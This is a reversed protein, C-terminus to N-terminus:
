SPNQTKDQSIKSALKNLGGILPYFFLTETLEGGEANNRLMKGLKMDETMTQRLFEIYGSLKVPDILFKERLYNKEKLVSSLYRDFEGIMKSIDNETLNDLSVEEEPTKSVPFTLSLDGGPYVAIIDRVEGADERSDDYLIGGMCTMEKARSWRKIEPAPFDSNGAVESFMKYALDKLKSSGVPEIINLIKSGNGTFTIYAPVDFGAKRILQALHYMIGTYFLLFVIKFDPDEFLKTNFSVKRDETQSGWRDLSFLMAIVDVSPYNEEIEALLKRTEDLKKASLEKKVPPLFTKLFGNNSKENNFGDGFVANGAFRFSTALRPVQKDKENIFLVMDTTEGGIDISLVPRHAANVEGRKSIWYFPAVSESVSVPDRKATIYKHFLDGWLRVLIDRKGQAMSNPYFWVLDTKDLSCNSLIVKNRILLLLSELYKELNKRNEQYNSWKLDPLIKVRPAFVKEFFFPINMDAMAHVAGETNLNLSRGIATRIPFQYGAPDDSGIEQPMIETLVAFEYQELDRKTVDPLSGSRLQVSDHLSALQMDSSTIKFPIPDGTGGIRYEIHTNTTGFDVAFKVQDNGDATLKILKPLIIGRPGDPFVVEVFDYGAKEFVYHTTSVPATSTKADSRRCTAVPSVPQQDAEDYFNLSAEESKYNHNRDVLCVRGFNRSKEKLKFFPFATISFNREVVRGRNKSLDFELDFSYLRVFDIFQKNKIPICLKLEVANNKGLYKIELYPKTRRDSNILDDITFYDFFLKKLPLIFGVPQDDAPREKLADFFKLSNISYNTQILYPELLDSVTVYPYKINTLGPLSRSYINEEKDFFGLEKSDVYDSKFYRMPKGTFDKGSHGKKLVLPIKGTIGKKTPAMIFDSDIDGAFDKSCLLPLKDIIFIGDGIKNYNTEGYHDAGLGTVEDYLKNDITNGNQLVKLNSDLYESFEKFKEIYGLAKIKLRMSYMMKQFEHDRRHLPTYQQDFAKDQNPFKLDTESSLDNGTTFFLTKPSTGGIVRNKKYELLYINKTMGFNFSGQDQLLYLKLAEGFLRHGKIKSNTLTTVDETTSWKHVRLTGDAAWSNYNFFIEAVDLYDSVLKHFTTIEMNDPDYHSEKIKEAVYKLASRILDMRAFPSPISTPESGKGGESDHINAPEIQSSVFWDLDEKRSEPRAESGKIKLRFVAM